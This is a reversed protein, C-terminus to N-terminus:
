LRWIARHCALDVMCWWCLGSRGASCCLSSPCGDGDGRDKGGDRDKAESSQLVGFIKHGTRIMKARELYGLSVVAAATRRASSEVGHRIGM